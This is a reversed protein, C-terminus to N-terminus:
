RVRSPPLLREPVFTVPELRVDGGVNRALERLALGCAECVLAKDGDKFTVRVTALEACPAAGSRVRASCNVERGRLPRATEHAEEAASACV